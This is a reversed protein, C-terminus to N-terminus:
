VVLAMKKKLITSFCHFYSLHCANERDSESKMGESEQYMKRPILTYM